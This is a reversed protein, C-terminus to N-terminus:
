TITRQMFIWLLFLVVFRDYSQFLMLDVGAHRLMRYDSQWLKWFSKFCAFCATTKANSQKSQLWLLRALKSTTPLKTSICKSRKIYQLFAFINKKAQLEHCYLISHIISKYKIKLCRWQRLLVDVTRQSLLFVDCPVLTENWHDWNVLILISEHKIWYSQISRFHWLVFHLNEVLNRDTAMITLNSWASPNFM